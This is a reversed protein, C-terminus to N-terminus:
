QVCILGIEEETLERWEGTKLGGLKIGGVRVRTLRDVSLGANACLIRVQHKRGERIVVSIAAAGESQRLLKVAAPRTLKGDIEAPASMLGLSEEGKYGRVRVHYEKEVEHSPHTLRNILENDNTMLLLGESNIDLRGAPLVRIGADKVLGAATPRNKEDSMTTVIGRPKNLMIYLKGPMGPLPKGDVAIVDTECATGGLKVTEGNVTVRGGSIYTEAARRSMVGRAAIIKQIREPM